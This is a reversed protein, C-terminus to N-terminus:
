KPVPKNKRHLLLFNTKDINISLETAVCWVYLKTFLERAQKIYIYAIALNSNSTIIATGDAYHRRNM